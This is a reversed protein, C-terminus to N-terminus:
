HQNTKIYLSDYLINSPLLTSMLTTKAGGENNSVICLSLYIKKAAAFLHKQYSVIAYLFLFKKKSSCIPTKSKFFV